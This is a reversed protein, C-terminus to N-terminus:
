YGRGAHVQRVFTRGDTTVRVTAGVADRNATTGRLEVDIWHAGPQRDNRLLTPADRSNLVVVDVDGDNDLDDFAAGRGCHRDVLGPGAQDTVNAFRGGLNRLVSPRCRYCAGPDIQEATDDTHGNAIFVDCWGDDDFDVLGCGWKVQSFTGSGLGVVATADEFLGGGLNRYFVPSQGRYTTILVDILGDADCDACDVGMGANENGFGDYALGTSLGKEQFVGSGDNIWHLNPDGDDAVLIDTDGDGDTDAAIPSTGYGVEAEDSLGDGDSDADRFNPTGDADTDVPMMGAGRELANSIGDGDLDNERWDPVGDADTDGTQSADDLGDANADRDLFDPSGDADSDVPVTTCNNYGGEVRDTIGDGDSDTDAANPTGDGDVDGSGEDMTSIFDMDADDEPSWRMPPGGSDVGPGGDIRPTPPTGSDDDGCGVFGLTAAVVLVLSWSRFRSSM